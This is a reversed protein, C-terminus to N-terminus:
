FSLVQLASKGKTSQYVKGVLFSNVVADLISFKFKCNRLFFQLDISFYILFAM